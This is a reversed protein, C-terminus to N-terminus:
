LSECYASLLAMINRNAKSLVAKIDEITITEQTVGAAWNVVVALSAYDVGLERALVAEPMGTMGVIDCGDNQLRKIEAATELRPGQTIAMTGSEFLTLEAKKAAKHLGARVGTSYPTTFDIHDDIQFDDGSFTHERGYTYDVLQDPLVLSAPPLHDSIGGVASIAVIHRVGLSHLAWINARYNIRHPAIAHDQGHRSLFVLKVGAHEALLLDSSPEGYPTSVNVQDLIKLDPLSHLATGGIIGICEQM